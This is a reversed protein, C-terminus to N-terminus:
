AASTTAPQTRTTDAETTVFDQRRILLLSLVGGVLAIIASIIFLHNMGDTFSSRIVHALHARQDEPVSQLAGAVNGNRVAAIVGPVLNSQGSLGRAIHDGLQSAFVSGFAAIGAAIGVQRFTSNVGSAMGSKAPHVVGVATSALPPNVLGAGVGAVILGPILHTWSSGADLGTM